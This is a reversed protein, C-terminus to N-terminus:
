VVKVVSSESKGGSRFAVYWGNLSKAMWWMPGPRASKTEWPAAPGSSTRLAGSHPAPCRIKKRWSPRAPGLLPPRTFAIACCALLSGLQERPCCNLDSPTAQLDSAFETTELYLESLENWFCSM